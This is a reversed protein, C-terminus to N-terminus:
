KLPWLLVLPLNQLYTLSYSSYKAWPTQALLQSFHDAILISEHVSYNQSPCNKCLYLQDISMMFKQDNM